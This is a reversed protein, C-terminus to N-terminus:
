ATRIPLVVPPAIPEASDDGKTTTRQGYYFGSLKAELASEIVASETIRNVGAFAALRKRLDANILANVRLREPPEVSKRKTAM